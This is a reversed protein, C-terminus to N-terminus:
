WKIGTMKESNEWLRRALAMDRSRKSSRVKVPYGRMEGMGDPGFYEGGHVDPATAAYLMPLAGMGPSQAFFNNLLFLWSQHRQLETAAWGPHAAVALANAGEEDLRRQLEKTFYLNALKSDGYAQWKNYRRKEWNLDDFDLVGFAHAGSSVTVVRSGPVRKLMDILLVTLAFHGLHNTGFQLEFGDATKGYPPAMVGANNILLDLRSYRKKFSEVFRRVSALDALDLQMVEVAAGPHRTRMKESAGDGKKKNRVAMIVRAGKEALTSAIEFGLGSNAGTVVAVKGGQDLMLGSDWERKEGM